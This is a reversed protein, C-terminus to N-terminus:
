GRVNVSFQDYFALSWVSASISYVKNKRVLFM